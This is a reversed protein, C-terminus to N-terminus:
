LGHIHSVIPKAIANALFLEMDVPFLAQVVDSIIHCFVMRGGMVEGHAFVVKVIKKLVDFAVADCWRKREQLPTNITGRSVILSFCYFFCRDCSYQSWM